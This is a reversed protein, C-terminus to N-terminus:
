YGNYTMMHIMFASLLSNLLTIGATHKYFEMMEVLKYKRYQKWGKKEDDPWPGKGQRLADWDEDSQGSQVIEKAVTYDKESDMIPITFPHSNLIYKPNPALVSIPKKAGFDM